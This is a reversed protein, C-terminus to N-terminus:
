INAIKKNIHDQLSLTCDTIQKNFDLFITGDHYQHISTVKAGTISCIAAIATSTFLSSTIILSFLLALTKKSKM